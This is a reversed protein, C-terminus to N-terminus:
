ASHRTTDRVLAEFRDAPLPESFYYGQAEQCGHAQLFAVQGATEVGEAVTQLGLSGALNIIARVIGQDEPDTTVGGTFSQDIKLKSARFRKLYNLSSYGTGFDDISTRIGLQHLKNMTEIAGVPDGMAVGETLELELYQPPLQAERLIESILQPLNPHRFQVSSLNVALTLPELGCDIWARLQTAASRLVWAGLQLIQGSDEAIPIFEAPSVNGLDSHGWRLLAEAGTIRGDVLSVQPQYHLRLESREIAGRLANELLLNRASSIQMEVTFFLYHNRGDNKALHMATDACKLLADFDQADSPYMAIGISPTVVLELQGTRYRNSLSELLQRATHAASNADAGPLVIIFEDGGIRAVTDEARVLSKMRKAFEILLEDGIGRGFTDNVNKFKDVGLALVALPEHTRAAIAIADTMRDNLLTRNPLGTLSDFHALHRLKEEARKQENIDMRVGLMRIGAGRSDRQVVKGRVSMWRYTGDAHRIRAEYGYSDTSGPMASDIAARVKPRDDPHVRELWAARDPVTQKYGLQTFYISSAYWRDRKLDWDWIGIQTADMTVRLRTRSMRAAREARKRATVDRAIGLVGIVNGRNDRMPTKITEFLGRYGTEAFTLWKENAQPQDCAMATRDSERFSDALKRDVLDYDTRGVIQAEPAGVYREFQPNCSLYTGNADKLWVLDPIADLTAKM